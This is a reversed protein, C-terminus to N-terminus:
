STRSSDPDHLTYEGMDAPSPSIPRPSTAVPAHGDNCPAQDVASQFLAFLHTELEVLEAHPSQTALQTTM